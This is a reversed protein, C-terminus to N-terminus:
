NESFNKSFRRLHWGAAQSAVAVDVEAGANVFGPFTVASTVSKVSSFGCGVGGLDIGFYLNGGGLMMVGPWAPAVDLAGGSTGSMPKIDKRVGGGFGGIGLRLSHTVSLSM